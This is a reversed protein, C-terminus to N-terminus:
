GNIFFKKCYKKGGHLIEMIYVGDPFGSYSM